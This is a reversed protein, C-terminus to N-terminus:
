AVALLHQTMCLHKIYHLPLDRAAVAIREPSSIGHLVGRAHGFLPVGDWPPFPFLRPIPPRRNTAPAVSPASFTSPWRAIPALRVRPCPPRMISAVETSAREFAHPIRLLRERPHGDHLLIVLDPCPSFTTIVCSTFHVGGKIRCCSRPM